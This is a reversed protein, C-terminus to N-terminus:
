NAVAHRALFDHVVQEVAAASNQEMLQARLEAANPFGNVYAKYHKKMVSFNKFPLLEEFLHSHEIM